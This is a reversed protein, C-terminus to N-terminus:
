SCSTSATGTASTSSWCAGLRDGGAVAGADGRRRAIRPYAPGRGDQLYTALASVFFLGASLGGLFLYAVILLGWRPDAM